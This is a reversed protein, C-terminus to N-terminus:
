GGLGALITWVSRRTGRGERSRASRYAEPEMSQM